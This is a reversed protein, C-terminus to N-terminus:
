ARRYWGALRHPDLGAAHGLALARNMLTRRVWGTTRWRRPDVGIECPLETFRGAAKATRVLRVEEFLPVAEFGGWAAFRDRRFFLGQDGYAVGRRARWNILRALRTAGRGHVGEFRFRFWGGDHGQGIHARIMAVANTPPTADAHLFWLVAGTASKAGANLQTGRGPATEVVTARGRIAADLENRDTNAAAVIVEHIGSATLGDAATLASLLRDLAQTDRYVPVVISVSVRTKETDQNPAADVNRANAPANLAGQTAAM